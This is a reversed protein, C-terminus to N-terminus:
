RPTLPMLFLRCSCQCAKPQGSYCLNMLCNLTKPSDPRNPNVKGNCSPCLGRCSAQTAHLEEGSGWPASPFALRHVTVFTARGHSSLVQSKSMSFQERFSAFPKREVAKHSHQMRLGEPQLKVWAQPGWAAVVTKTCGSCQPHCGCGSSGPAGLLGPHWSM